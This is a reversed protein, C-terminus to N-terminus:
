SWQVQAKARWLDLARRDGSVDLGDVDRRNWLLLYLDAAPGRVVCTGRDTGRTVERGGPRIAVSWCDGEGADTACIGLTVPPDAVLRGRPRSFFGLLLEDIGDVAFTTSLEPRSGRVSEVDARHVATEHAQRRAWFSLPSPAPLFSWCDVDPRSRRLTDVLGAHGARFWDLLEDDPPVDALEGDGTPPAADASAHQAM